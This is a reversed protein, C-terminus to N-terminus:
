YVRPLGNLMVSTSSALPSTNLKELLSSAVDARCGVPTSASSSKYALLVDCLVVERDECRSSEYSLLMNGIVEGTEYSREFVPAGSEHAIWM